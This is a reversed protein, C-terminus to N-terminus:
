TPRDGVHALAADPNAPRLGWGRLVSGPDSLDGIYRRAPPPKLRVLTPIALVQDDKALQLHERIDLIELRYDADDLGECLRRANVVARTSAPTAGGVYLRLVFRVDPDSDPDSDPPGAPASHKGPSTM